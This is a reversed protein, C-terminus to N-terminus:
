LGSGSFTGAPLTSGVTGSFGAIACGAIAIGAVASRTTCAPRIFNTDDKPRLKNPTIKDKRARVYDQPHRVEWDRKCVLLGDWRKRLDSSKYKRGCVDCIANHDGASFHTDEHLKM